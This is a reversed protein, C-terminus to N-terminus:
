DNEERKYITKTTLFGDDWIQKYKDQIAEKTKEGKFMKLIDLCYRDDYFMSDVLLYDINKLNALHDIISSVNSRYVHTGFEDEVIPMKEERKEEKLFLNKNQYHYEQKIEKLYSKLLHRKSYFMNLHKHANMFVIGKKNSSMENIDTLNIEKSLFVGKLGVEFFINMDFTNTILTEPQYIIPIELDKLLYYYGIDGIILGTINIKLDKILKFLDEGQHHLFPKFSLYLEKNHKGLIESLKRLEDVTFFSTERTSFGKLGVVFGETYTLLSEINNLNHITSLLKM